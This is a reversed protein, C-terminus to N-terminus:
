QHISILKWITDPDRESHAATTPFGGYTQYFLPQLGEYPSGLGAFPIDTKGPTRGLRKNWDDLQDYYIKNRHGDLTRDVYKSSMATSSYIHFVLLATVLSAFSTRRIPAWSTERSHWWEVLDICIPILMVALGIMTVTYYRMQFSYAVGWRLRHFVTMAFPLVVLIQGLFWVSLRKYRDPKTKLYYFVLCLNAVLGLSSLYLDFPLVGPLHPKYVNALYEFSISNSIGLGRAITGYQSGLLVYRLAEWMDPTQAEDLFVGSGRQFNMYLIFQGVFFVALISLLTASRRIIVSRFLAQLGERISVRESSYWIVLFLAPLEIALAFNGGFVFPGLVGAALAGWLRSRKGHSVYDWACIMCLFRLSMALVTSQCTLWQLVQAHLGCIIYLYSLTRAISEAHRRAGILRRLVAEFLLGNAAHCLLNLIIFASYNDAFLKIQLYFLSSFIPIFHENQTLFVSMVGHEAIRELYQWDDVYFFPGFRFHVIFTSLFYLGFRTLTSARPLLLLVCFAFGISLAIPVVWNHRSQKLRNQLKLLGVPVKYFNVRGRISVWGMATAADTVRIRIPSQDSREVLAASLKWIGRPQGQPMYKRKLVEGSETEITLYVNQWQSQDVLGAFEVEVLNGQPQIWESVCEAQHIPNTDSWTVTRQIHEFSAVASTQQTCGSSKSWAINSFSQFRVLEPSYLLQYALGAALILGIVVVPVVKRGM